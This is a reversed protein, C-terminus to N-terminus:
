VLRPQGLSRGSLYVFDLSSFVSLLEIYRDTIGLNSCLDEFKPYHMWLSGVTQKPKSDPQNHKAVKATDLIVVRGDVLRGNLELLAKEAEETSSFTVYAIGKPRRKFKDMMIDVRLVQGYQSFAQALTEETSSFSVGKVFLTSSFTRSFLLSPTSCRNLFHNLM